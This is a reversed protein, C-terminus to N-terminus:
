FADGAEFVLNQADGKVWITFHYAEWSTRVPMTGQNWCKWAPIAENMEVIPWSQGTGQICGLGGARAKSVKM